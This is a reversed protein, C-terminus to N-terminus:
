KPTRKKRKFRATEIVATRLEAQPMGPVREAALEVARAIALEDGTRINPVMALPDTRFVEEIEAAVWLDYPTPAPGRRAHPATAAEKLKALRRLRARERARVGKLYADSPPPSENFPRDGPRLWTGTATRNARILVVAGAVLVLMCVIVLVPALTFALVGGVVANWVLVAAVWLRWPMPPGSTERMAAWFETWRTREIPYHVVRQSRGGGTTEMIALPEWPYLAQSSRRGLIFLTMAACVFDVPIFFFISVLVPSTAVALLVLKWSDPNARDVGMSAAWLFLGGASFIVAAFLVYLVGFAPFGVPHAAVKTTTPSV